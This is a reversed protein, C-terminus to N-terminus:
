EIPEFLVEGDIVVKRAMVCDETMCNVPSLDDRSCGCEGAANFLGDINNGKLYVFIVDQVSVETLPTKNVETFEVDKFEGEEKNM